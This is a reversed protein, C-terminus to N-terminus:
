AAPMPSPQSRPLGRMRMGMTTTVRQFDRM